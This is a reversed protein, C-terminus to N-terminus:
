SAVLLGQLAKTTEVYKDGHCLLVARTRTDMPMDTPLTRLVM